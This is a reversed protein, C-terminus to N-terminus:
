GLIGPHVLSAIMILSGMVTFACLPIIVILSIIKLVKMGAKKALRNIWLALPLYFVAAIAFTIIFYWRQFDRSLMDGSTITLFIASLPGCAGHLLYVTGFLISLAIVKKKPSDQM